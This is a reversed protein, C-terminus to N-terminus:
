GYRFFGNCNPLDIVLYLIFLFIMSGTVVALESVLDWGM